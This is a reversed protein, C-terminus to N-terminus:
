LRDLLEAKKAAFEEDTVIGRRRLEDLQMLREAVTEEGPAPRSVRATGSPPTEDTM